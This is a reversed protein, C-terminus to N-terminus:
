DEKKNAHRIENLAHMYGIIYALGKKMDDYNIFLPIIKKHCFEVLEDDTLEILKEINM